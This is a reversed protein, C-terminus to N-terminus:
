RCDIKDEGSHTNRQSMLALARVDSSLDEIRSSTDHFTNVLVTIDAIQGSLRSAEKASEAMTGIDKTLELVKRSTDLQVELTTAADKSTRSLLKSLCM